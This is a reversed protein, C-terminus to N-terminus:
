DEDSEASSFLRRLGSIVIVILLIGAVDYIGPMRGSCFPLVKVIHFADGQRVWNIMCATLLLVIIVVGPTKM